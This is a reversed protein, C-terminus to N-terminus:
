CQMNREFQTCICDSDAHLKLPIHMINGIQKYKIDQQKFLLIALYIIDTNEIKHTKNINNTKIM